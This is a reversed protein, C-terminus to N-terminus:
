ESTRIVRSLAADFSLSMEGAGHLETMLCDWQTAALRARLPERRRPSRKHLERDVSGEFFIVPIPRSRRTRPWRPGARAPITGM